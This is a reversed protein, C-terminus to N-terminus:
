DTIKQIYIQYLPVGRLIQIKKCFINTFCDIAIKPSRILDKGDPLNEAWLYDDFFIFGGRKVLKFSLLADLLVDPAQHSGDVYILDFHSEMGMSILNSLQKDSSGKLIMVDCNNKSITKAHEINSKFREEVAVMNFKKNQHEIGGHWTDICYIEIMPTWDNNEILYCTSAGEFSGIELIKSPKIQPILSDWNPKATATFWDTTFEYSM